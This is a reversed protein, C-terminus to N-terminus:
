IVLSSKSSRNRIVPVVKSSKTEVPQSQLIRESRSPKSVSPLTWPSFHVVKDKSVREALCKSLSLDLSWRTPVLEVVVGHLKGDGQFPFVEELVIQSPQNVKPGELTLSPPTKASDGVVTLRCHVPYPAAIHRAAPFISVITREEPAQEWLVLWRVLLM